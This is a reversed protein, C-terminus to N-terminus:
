KKLVESSNDKNVLFNILDEYGKIDYASRKDENIFYFKGNSDKKMPKYNAKDKTLFCFECFFNNFLENYIFNHKGNVNNEICYYILESTM